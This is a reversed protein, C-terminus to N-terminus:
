GVKVAVRNGGANAWDNNDYYANRLDVFAALHVARNQVM